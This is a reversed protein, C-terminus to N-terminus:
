STLWALLISQPFQGDTLKYRESGGSPMSELSEPTSSYSLGSTQSAETLTRPLHSEKSAEEKGIKPIKFDQKTAIIDQKLKTYQDYVSDDMINPTSQSGPRTCEKVRDHFDGCLELLNQQPNDAFSQPLLAFEGEISFLKTEIECLM